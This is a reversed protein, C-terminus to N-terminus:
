SFKNFGEGGGRVFNTPVGSIPDSRKLGSPLVESINRVPGKNTEVALRSTTSPVYTKDMGPFPSPLGQEGIM